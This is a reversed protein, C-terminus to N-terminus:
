KNACESIAKKLEEIIYIHNPKIQEKAKEKIQEYLLSAKEYGAFRCLQSFVNDIEININILDIFGKTSAVFSTANLGYISKM